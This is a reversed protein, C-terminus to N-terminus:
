ICTLLFHSCHYLIKFVNFLNWWIVWWIVKGWSTHGMYRFSFNIFYILVEVRDM